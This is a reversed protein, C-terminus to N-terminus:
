ETSLVRRHMKHVNRKTKMCGQFIVVGMDPILFSLRRWPQVMTLLPDPFEGVCGSERDQWWEVLPHTVHKWNLPYFIDAKREKILYIYIEKMEHSFPFMGRHLILLFTLVAIKQLWVLQQCMSELSGPSTVTDVIAFGRWDLCLIVVDLIQLTQGKSVANECKLGTNNECPDESHANNM